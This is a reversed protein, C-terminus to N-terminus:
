EGTLNNKNRYPRDMEHMIEEAKVLADETGDVLKRARAREEARAKEERYLLQAPTPEAPEKRIRFKGAFHKASRERHTGVLRSGDSARV